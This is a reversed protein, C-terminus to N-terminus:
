NIRNIVSDRSDFLRHPAEYGTSDPTQAAVSGGPHQVGDQDKWGIEWNYVQGDLPCQYSSDGVRALTVGIHDPCYRTSLSKTNTQKYTKVSHEEGGENAREQKKKPERVLLSHHHKSDYCKDQETELDKKAHKELFDDILDAEKRAGTKDLEDAVRALKQFVIGLEAQRKQPEVPISPQEDMKQEIETLSKLIKQSLDAMTENESADATNPIIEVAHKQILADIESAADFEGKSDLFDALKILQEIKM